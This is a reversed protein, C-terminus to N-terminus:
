CVTAIILGDPNHVAPISKQELYWTLATEDENTKPQLFYNTNFTKLGRDNVRYIPAWHLKFMEPDNAVLIAKKAGIMDTKTGSSNKYVQNYKYIDVGGITGLYNGWKKRPDNLKMQGVQYNLNDLQERVEDNARFYKAATKGLILSARTIGTREIIYDMWEEIQAIPDSSSASWKDSAGATFIHGGSALAATTLGFDYDIELDDQSISIGGTSIIQCAMWERLTIVRRKLADVESMVWDNAAKERDKPSDIYIKGLENYDALEQAGFLKKEFSRAIKLSKVTRKKKSVLKAEANPAALQAMKNDWYYTEFDFSDTAHFQKNKFFMNLLFPETTVTKNVANTLSRASYIDISM